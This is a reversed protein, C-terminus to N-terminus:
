KAQLLQFLLDLTKITVFGLTLSLPFKFSMNSSAEEAGGQVDQLCYKDRNLAPEDGGGGQVDVLKQLLSPM